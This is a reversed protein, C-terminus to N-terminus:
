KVYTEIATFSGHPEIYIGKSSAPLLLSQGSQLEKSQEGSTIRASGDTAILIVFTDWESYDRILNGDLKLLNTCFYPSTVLNVPIDNLVKYNVKEGGTDEFNIAEMAQDIHLEREKGNADKRHYDYIRFTVDSTQQIELTFIGAGISHIRGAPIFFTDGGAAPHENILQMIEGSDVIEKFHEKKIPSKLGSILQSNEEAKVVYWMETKGMKYGMALATEDDPHVQLSLDQHADIFKVLLPFRDGFRRYNKTGVLAGKYKKVLQRLNIGADPGDAVVSASKEVDSIEWSEGINSKETDLHKFCAIESGGWLTTKLIPLFTWM